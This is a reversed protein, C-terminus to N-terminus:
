DLEAALVAAAPEAIGAPLARAISAPQRDLGTVAPNSLMADLLAPYILLYSLLPRQYLLMLRCAAPPRRGQFGSSRVTLSQPLDVEELTPLHSNTLDLETLPGDAAQLAM